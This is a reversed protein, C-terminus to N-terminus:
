NLSQPWRARLPVNPEGQFNFHVGPTPEQYEETSPNERLIKRKSFSEKLWINLNGHSLPTGLNWLFTFLFNNPWNQKLPWKFGSFSNLPQPIEWYNM